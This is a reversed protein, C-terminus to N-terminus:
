KNKRAAISAELDQLQSEHLNMLADYAEKDAPHMDFPYGAPKRVSIGAKALTAAGGGGPASAKGGLPLTGGERPDGMEKLYLKQKTREAQDAQDADYADQLSKRIPSDPTPM